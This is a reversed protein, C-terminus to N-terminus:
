VQKAVDIDVQRKLYVFQKDSDLRRKLDASNLGLLRALQQVKDNDSEVQTPDAWITKAPISSALINGNRDLIRGRMAPLEITRVFRLEGQNQYFQTTWVQVWFARLALAAFAAFLLGKVLWARGPPLKVSLLPSKDYSAASAHPRVAPNKM